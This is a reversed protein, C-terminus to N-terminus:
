LQWFYFRYTSLTTWKYTTSNFAVSGRQISSVYKYRFLSDVTVNIILWYVLGFNLRPKQAM